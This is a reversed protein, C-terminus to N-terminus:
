LIPEFSGSYVPIIVLSSLYVYFCVWQGVFVFSQSVGLLYGLSSYRYAAAEGLYRWFAMLPCFMAWAAVLCM